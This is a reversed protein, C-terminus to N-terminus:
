STKLDREQFRECLKMRNRTSPRVVKFEVLAVCFRKVRLMAMHSLRTKSILIFLREVKTCIHMDSLERTRENAKASFHAPWKRDALNRCPHGAMLWQTRLHTISVCTRIDPTQRACGAFWATPVKSCYVYHPGYKRDPVTSIYHVRVCAWWAMRHWWNTSRFSPGFWCLQRCLRWKPNFWAPPPPPKTKYLNITHSCITPMTKRRPRLM